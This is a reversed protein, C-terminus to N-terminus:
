KNIEEPSDLLGGKTETNCDWQWCWWQSCRWPVCDWLWPCRPCRLYECVRIILLVYQVTDNAYSM